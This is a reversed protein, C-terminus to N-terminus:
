SYNGHLELDHKEPGELHLPQLHRRFEGNLSFVQLRHSHPDCVFLEGDLITMGSPRLGARAPLVLSPTRNLQESLKDRPTLGSRPTADRSESSARYFARM